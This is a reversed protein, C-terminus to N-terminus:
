VLLESSKHPKKFNSGQLGLVNGCAHAYRYHCCLGSYIHLSINAIRTGTRSSTETSFASCLCQGGDQIATELHYSVPFLAIIRETCAYTSISTNKYKSRYPKHKHKYRLSFWAKGLPFEPLSIFGSRDVIQFIIVSRNFSAQTGGERVDREDFCNDTFKHGSQLM